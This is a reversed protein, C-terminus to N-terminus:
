YNCVVTAKLLLCNPYEYRSIDFLDTVPDFLVQAKPLIRLNFAYHPSLTQGDKMTYTQKVESILGSSVNEILTIVPTQVLIQQAFKQRV